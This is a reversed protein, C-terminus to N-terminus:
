MIIVDEAARTIVAVAAALAALLPNFRGVLLVLFGIAGWLLFRRSVKAVQQPPTRRFWHLFWLLAGIVAVLPILRCFM